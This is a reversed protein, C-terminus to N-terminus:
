QYQCVCVRVGFVCRSKNECYHFVAEKTILKNTKRMALLVSTMWDEVRGEVLVPKKLEMVEGEVSVMAGAVTEGSSEVDFRLSAINDFMKAGLSFLIKLKETM